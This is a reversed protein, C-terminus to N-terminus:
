SRPRNSSMEYKIVTRWRKLHRLLISWIRWYWINPHIDGGSRLWKWEGDRLRLIWGAGCVCWWGNEAQQYYVDQTSVLPGHCKNKAHRTEQVPYAGVRYGALLVYRKPENM